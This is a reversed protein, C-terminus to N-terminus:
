DKNYIIIAQKLHKALTTKGMGPLGTPVFFIKKVQEMAPQQLTQLLRQEIATHSM